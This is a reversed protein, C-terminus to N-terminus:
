PGCPRRGPAQAVRRFLFVFQEVREVAQQFPELFEADVLQFAVVHELIEFGGGRADTFHAGADITRNELLMMKTSINKTRRSPATAKTRGTMAVENEPDAVLITAAMRNKKPGRVLTTVIMGM